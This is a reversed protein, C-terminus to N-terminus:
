RIRLERHDQMRRLLEVAAQHDAAGHLQDQLAQKRRLERLRRFEALLQALWAPRDPEARGKEQMRLAHDILRPNDIMDRLRDVEPAHGAAHLAYLAELLKRLGPHEM